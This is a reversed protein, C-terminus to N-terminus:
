SNTIYAQYFGIDTNVVRTPHKAKYDADVVWQVDKMSCPALGLSEFDLTEILVGNLLMAKYADYKAWIREVWKRVALIMVYPLITMKYEDPASNKLFHLEYNIKVEQLYTIGMNDYEREQYALATDVVDQHSYKQVVGQRGAVYDAWAQATWLATFGAPLTYQLTFPLLSFQTVQASEIKVAIKSHIQKYTAWVEATWLETFGEPLLETDEVFDTVSGNTLKVAVM